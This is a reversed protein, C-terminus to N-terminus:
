LNAKLEIFHLLSLSIRLKVSRLERFHHAFFYYSTFETKSILFVSLIIVEEPHFEVFLCKSQQWGKRQVFIM